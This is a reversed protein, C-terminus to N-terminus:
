NCSAPTDSDRAGAVVFAKVDAYIQEAPLRLFKKAAKNSDKVSERYVEGTYYSVTPEASGGSGHKDAAMYADWEAMTRTNPPISKAATEMHCSTCVMKFYVQGRKKNPESALSSSAFGLALTVALITLASKLPTKM